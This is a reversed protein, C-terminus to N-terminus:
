PQQNLLREFEAIQVRNAEQVGAYGSCTMSFLNAGAAFTLLPQAGHYFTASTTAPPLGRRRASFGDRRINAFDVLAQIRYPDGIESQRSGNRSIRVLTVNALPACSIGQQTRNCAAFTAILLLVALVRAAPM